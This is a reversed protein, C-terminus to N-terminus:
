NSKGLMGDSPELILSINWPQLLRVLEEHTSPDNTVKEWAIPIVVNILGETAVKNLASFAGTGTVAVTLKNASAPRRLWASVWGTYDRIIKMCEEVTIPKVKNQRADEARQRREIWNVIPISGSMVNTLNHLGIEDIRDAECKYAAVENWFLAIKRKHIQHGANWISRIKNCKHSIAGKRAEEEHQDVRNRQGKGVYFVTDSRPDVLEYVYWRARYPSM